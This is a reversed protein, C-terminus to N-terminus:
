RRKFPVQYLWVPKGPVTELRARPQWGLAEFELSVLWAGPRLEAAAKELARPMSEPRQFLYVLDCGSWDRAWIDARRVRAFRCRLQCLLALPWSWEWGHIQACPYQAQLAVLGAGLGPQVGSCQGTLFLQHLLTKHGGRVAVLQASRLGM